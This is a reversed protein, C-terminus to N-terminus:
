GKGLRHLLACAAIAQITKGLGMEDALLARGTFALHLMGERQYPYLPVLTEHTPYEGAHVKHEYERRLRRKEEALRMSELWPSGTDPLRIRGADDGNLQNLAAQLDSASEAPMRGNPDFWRRLARPLAAFNREVVLSQSEPDPVIDVRPSGNTRAAAFLKRFKAQLLALVAEVHKCAGLGNVQFDTCTCGFHRQALDRVEVEYTVGSRSKVEFNSFIAQRPDLNRISPGEERARLIRRNIEDQDTTRWDTAHPLQIETASSPRRSNGARVVPTLSAM